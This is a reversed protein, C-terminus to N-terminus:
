SVSSLMSCKLVDDQDKRIVQQCKEINESM